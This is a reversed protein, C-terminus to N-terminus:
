AHKMEEENDLYDYINTQGTMLYHNQTDTKIFQAEIVEIMNEHFSSYKVARKIADSLSESEYIGIFHNPIFDNWNNDKQNDNSAMSGCYIQTDRLYDSKLLAIYKKM